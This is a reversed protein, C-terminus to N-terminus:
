DDIEVKYNILAKYVRKDIFGQNYAITAELRIYAEKADKYAKFAAEPTDFNGLIRTVNGIHITPTYKGEYFSKNVGIPLVGRNGDNKELLCNIRHPVLCCTDPSYLKNGKVLIDKDLEQKLKPRFSAYFWRRFNSYYKWEDCVTCGNYTPNKEVFGPQYCRSLMCKWKEYGRENRNAGEVDNIGVGYVPKREWAM